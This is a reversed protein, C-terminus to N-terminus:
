KATTAQHFDTVFQDVAHGLAENLTDAMVEPSAAVMTGKDAHGAYQKAFITQGDRRVQANFVVDATYNGAANCFAKVVSGSVMYTGNAPNQGAPAVKYQEHALEGRIAGAVWQGPDNDATVDPATVVVASSIHGIVNRNARQDLFPTVTVPQGAGDFRPGAGALAAYTLQVHREYPYCGGAVLLALMLLVLSSIRM